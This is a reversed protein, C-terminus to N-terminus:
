AFRHVAMQVESNPFYEYVKVYRRVFQLFIPRVNRTSSSFLNSIQNVLIKTAGFMEFVFRPMSSLLYYITEENAPFVAQFEKLYGTLKESPINESLVRMFQVSIDAIEKSESGYNQLVYTFFKM